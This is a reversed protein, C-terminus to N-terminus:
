LNLLARLRPEDFGIIVESGIVTTPVGRSQYKVVLDRRAEADISIDKETFDIGNSALWNKLTTCWPCGPRTYVIPKM